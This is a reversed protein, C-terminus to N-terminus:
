EEEKFIDNPFRTNVQYDSLLMYIEGTQKKTNTQKSSNKKIDAALMKPIKFKKMEVQIMIKDPLAYQIYRGYFNKTRLTGNEKTTIESQYILPNKESIWFKGIVLELNPDLPIVNVVACSQGDIVEIGSIITTYSTTQSLLHQINKMPNNKPMFFVGTAKIKFKDPQKYFVKGKLSKINIGPLDFKMSVDAKYDKVLSFKRNIEAILKKGDQQQGFCFVANLLLLVFLIHQKM